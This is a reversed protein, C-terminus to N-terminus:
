GYGQAIGRMKKRSKGKSSQDKSVGMESLTKPKDETTASISQPFKNGQKLTGKAKDM